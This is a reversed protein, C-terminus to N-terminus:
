RPRVARAQLINRRSPDPNARRLAADTQAEACAPLADLCGMTARLGTICGPADGGHWQPLDIRRTRRADHKSIDTAATLGMVARSQQQLVTVVHGLLVLRLLVM